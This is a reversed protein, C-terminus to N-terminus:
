RKTRDRNEREREARLERCRPCYLVDVLKNENPPWDDPSVPWGPYPYKENDITGSHLGTDPSQTRYTRIQSYPSLVTDAILDCDHVECLTFVQMITTYDRPCASMTEAFASWLEHQWYRLRGANIHATNLSRVFRRYRDDGAYSRFAERLCVTNM